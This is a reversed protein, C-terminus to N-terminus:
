SLFNASCSGSGFYKALQLQLRVFNSQSRMMSLIVTIYPAMSKFVYKKGKEGGRAGLM